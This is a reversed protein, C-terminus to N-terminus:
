GPRKIEFVRVPDEFGRMTHEGIDAFLFGKGACLERVALSALVEGGQAMAAIRAALIVTEGFLDGDEEIPEGANLGVRVHLEELRGAAKRQAKEPHASGELAEPHAANRSTFAQQLALACEVARTVSPFSAMFGDGMTKVETGGHQKLIGRTIQEHERLVARGKEDGLRRMMATHGVLDTFLVTRFGSAPAEAAAGGTPAEVIFDHIATFAQRFGEASPIHAGPFSVFRAGKIGAAVEQGLDIPIIRDDRSHIVLTPATIKGLLPRADIAMVSELILVADRANGGLRQYQAFGNMDLVSDEACFLDAILRSAMGWEARAVALVADRMEQSGAVGGGNAFSGMIVLKTVQEPHNAAYYLALPGGESIGGVAFKDLGLDKAVAEVDRNRAELSYDDLDRASLGTGRKDLQIWQIGELMPRLGAMDFLPYDLELHSVWGPIWILPTGEGEVGYAIRVGDETTCYRIDFGM